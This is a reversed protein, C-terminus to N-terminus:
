RGDHEDLVCPGLPPIPRSTISRRRCWLDGSKAYVHDIDAYSLWFSLREKRQSEIKVVAYHRADM